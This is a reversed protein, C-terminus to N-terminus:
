KVFYIKNFHLVRYYITILQNLMLKLEKLMLKLEKLMLKLEKLM